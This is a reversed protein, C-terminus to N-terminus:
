VEDICCTNCIDVLVAFHCCEDFVAGAVQEAIVHVENTSRNVAGGNEDDLVGIVQPEGLFHYVPSTAYAWLTSDLAPPATDGPGTGDFGAGAIVSNGFADYIRSVGDEDLVKEVVYASLWQTVVQRPAHIVGPVSGLCGALSAQLQGLAYTLPQAVSAALITATGANSLYPNPFGGAQAATGLWFEQELELPMTRKLRNLAREEWDIAEFAWTSSAWDAYFETPQWGVVGPPTSRPKEAPVNAAGCVRWVGGTGCGDPLWQLGLEWRSEDLGTEGAIYPVEFFNPTSTILGHGGPPAAPARVVVGPFIDPM